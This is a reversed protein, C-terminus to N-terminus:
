AVNRINRWVRSVKSWFGVCKVDISGVNKLRESDELLALKGFLGGNKCLVLTEVSGRRALMGTEVIGDGLSSDETCSHSM